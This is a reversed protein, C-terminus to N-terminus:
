QDKMPDILRCFILVTTDQLLGLAPGKQTINIEIRSMIPASLPLGIEGGDGKTM